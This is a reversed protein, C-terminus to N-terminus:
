GLERSLGFLVLVAHGSQYRGPFMAAFDPEIHRSDPFKYVASFDLTWRGRKWGAGAYIRTDEGDYSLPSVGRNGVIHDAHSIGTRLALASSWRWEAGIAHRWEDTADPIFPFDFASTDEFRVKSEGFSSSDIWRVTYALTWDDLPRITIGASAEAPIKLDLDTDQREGTPTLSSGDMWIKGPPRASFGLSLRDNVHWSVGGMATLGPGTLKFRPKFLPEVGEPTYPPIAFHSRFYGFGPMLQVGLWLRDSARYAVSLPATMITVEAFLDSNVGVSPKKPYDYRTGVTGHMGVAYSWRGKGRRVYAFEPILAIVSNDKDYGAPFTAEVKGTGWAAGLGGTLTTEFRALGAPNAFQAGVPSRPSALDAGAMGTDAAGITAALLDSARAIGANCGVLASAVVLAILNRASLTLPRRRRREDLM